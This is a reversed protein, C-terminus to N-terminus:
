EGRGRLISGLDETGMVQKRFDRIDPSLQQYFSAPTKAIVQPDFQPAHEDLWSVIEGYIPNREYSMLEEVTAEIGLRHKKSLCDCPKGAIRGGDQLDLEIRYLEKGLRQKLMAITEATNALEVLSGAPAVGAKMDEKSIFVTAPIAAPALSGGAPVSCSPAKCRELIEMPDARNAERILANAAILGLKVQTTVM